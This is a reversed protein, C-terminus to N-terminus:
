TDYLLKDHVYVNLTNVIVHFNSCQFFTTRQINMAQSVFTLYQLWSIKLKGSFTDPQLSSRM